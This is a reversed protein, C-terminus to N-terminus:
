RVRSMTMGCSHMMELYTPPYHRARLYYAIFEYVREAQEDINMVENEM